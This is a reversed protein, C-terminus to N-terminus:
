DSQALLAKNFTPVDKLYTTGRREVRVSAIGKSSLYEWLLLYFSKNFKGCLGSLSVVKDSEYVINVTAVYSSKDEFSGGEYCRVLEVISQIHISNM